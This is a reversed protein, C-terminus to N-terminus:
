WGQNIATIVRAVDEDRLLTHLPLSMIRGFVEEAVQTEGGCGAYMPYLHNPKYHVGPEIGQAKLDAILKDRRPAQITFLHQSSLHDVDSEPSWCIIEPHNLGARYQDAIERRRANESELLKLQELGLAATIDNMHYKFGVETVDYLWAQPSAKGHDEVTRTFTDKDIGLWRLRRLRRYTEEDNTTVMGGDGLGINKVAHFSFCTLGWAGIKRGKYAAGMGHAADEIVRLGHEAALHYLPELEAPYGGYHVVMIAKTRPTILRVVSAPDLNCTRPDIAGFVPVAGQYLLVHNTSVFTFPTTIVEDGPGLGSVVAALHLSSTGSNTAVAYRSGVHRAFAEEFAATVPGLGLWGSSLVKQVAELAAQSLNAKFLQVNEM